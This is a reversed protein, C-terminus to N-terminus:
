LSVIVRPLFVCFHLLVVSFSARLVFVVLVVFFHLLVQFFMFIRPRTDSFVFLSLLYFSSVGIPLPLLFCCLFLLLSLGLGPPINNQWDLGLLLCVLCIALPLFTLEAGTALHRNRSAPPPLLQAHCKQSNRVCDLRWSSRSRSLTADRARTSKAGIRYRAPRGLNDMAHAMGM